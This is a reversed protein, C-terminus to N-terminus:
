LPDYGGKSLPHCKIIRKVSKTIGKIIGYKIIVKKIYNSCTPYFKCNNSLQPSIFYQYFKITIIITKKYLFSIFNIINNM